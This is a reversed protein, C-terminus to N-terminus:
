MFPGQHRTAESDAPAAVLRARQAETPIHQVSQSQEIAGRSVCVTSAFVDHVGQNRKSAVLTVFQAILGFPFLLFTAIRVVCRVVAHVPSVRGGDVRVVRFGAVLQGPKGRAPGAVWLVEWVISTAVWTVLMGFEEFHIEADDNLLALGILVVFTVVSLILVDIIFAAIRAGISAFQDDAFSGPTQM